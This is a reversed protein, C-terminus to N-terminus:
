IQGEQMFSIQEDNIKSEWGSCGQNKLDSEREIYGVTYGQRNCGYNWYTGRMSAKKKSKNLHDCDFCTYM